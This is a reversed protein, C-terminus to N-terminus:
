HARVLLSARSSMGAVLCQLEEKKGKKGRGRAGIFPLPPCSNCPVSCKYEPVQARCRRGVLPVSWKYEPVQARCRRGVLKYGRNCVVRALSCSLEVSSM